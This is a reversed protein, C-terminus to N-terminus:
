CGARRTTPRHSTGPRFTPRHLRSLDAPDRDAPQHLDLLEAHRPQELESWDLKSREFTAPDQPDPVDSTDWEMQAFEELRGARCWRPWSRSPIPPSSAGPRRRCGVGRGHLDDPHVPQAAHGDGRHGATGTSSARCGSARPATASRTTTTPASWWGGPRRVGPTLRTDTRVTRPLVVPHRRPLLRSEFVKGLAALSDFDAYYGSTDGTLSVYLAHHFDDSWQATLGYGGGERATILRPDNLDSEAILPLPRGLFTSRSTSM